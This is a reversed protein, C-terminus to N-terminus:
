LLSCDSVSGYEIYLWLEGYARSEDRKIKIEVLLTNQKQQVVIIGISDSLFYKDM